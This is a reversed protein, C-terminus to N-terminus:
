GSSEPDLEEVTGDGRERFVQGEFLSVMTGEDQWATPALKAKRCARTLFEEASWGNEVPITPYLWVHDAGAEIAVGHTGVELDALPDDTLTYDTVVCVSVDINPLEAPEIESGCSDGSAARIAAEVSAHGLQDTGRYAGACGRLRGRGRSSQLRVLAGTRAYFADRM